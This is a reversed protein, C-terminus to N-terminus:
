LFLGLLSSALTYTFLELPCLRARNPRPRWAPPPVLPDLRLLGAEPLPAPTAQGTRPSMPGEGRLLMATEGNMVHTHRDRWPTHAWAQTAGCGGGHQSWRSLQPSDPCLGQGLAPFPAPVIEWSEKSVSPRLAAGQAPRRCYCGAAGEPGPLCGGAANPSSTQAPGLWRHHGSTVRICSDLSTLTSNSRPLRASPTLPLRGKPSTPHQGVPGLCPGSGGVGM